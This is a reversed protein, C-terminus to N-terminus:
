MHLMVDPACCASRRVISIYLLVVRKANAHLVLVLTPRRLSHM